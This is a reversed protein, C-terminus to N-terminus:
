TEWAGSASKLGTELAEAMEIAEAESIVGEEWTICVNMWGGKVSVMSVVYPAAYTSLGGCFWAKDFYAKENGVEGGDVTTINTVEFAAERWGGLKKMFFSAYDSAFKLMTVNQDTSSATKKRMFDKTKRASDWLKPDNSDSKDTATSDTACSIFGRPTTPESSFFPTLNSVLVGMDRPTHETFRRFSFPIGSNFHKHSPYMQALKRAVLVLVLATVTANEERCKNVLGSVQAPSLAFSRLSPTSPTKPVTRTVPAGSWALTDVPNYIFEKIIVMIIFLITLALNASEELSPVLPLKPVSVIAKDSIPTSSPSSIHANLAELFTYHFAAGSMGDAIAHHGFFALMFKLGGKYTSSPSLESKKVSVIIRWVALEDVRDIRERLGKQLWADPCEEPDQEIIKVIQTFDITQLRQWRPEPSLEDQITVGLIPQSKLV